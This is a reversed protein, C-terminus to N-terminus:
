PWPLAPRASTVTSALPLWEFNCLVCRERVVGYRFRVGTRTLLAKIAYPKNAFWRFVDLTQVVFGEM